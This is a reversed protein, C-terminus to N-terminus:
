VLYPVSSSVFMETYNNAKSIKQKTFVRLIKYQWVFFRPSSYGKQQWLYQEDYKEKRGVGCIHKLVVLRGFRKGMLDITIM